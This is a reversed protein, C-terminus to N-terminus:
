AYRYVRRLRVFFALSVAFSLVEAFPVALWIGNVGVALPFLTVGAAIFVFTRLFSLIASVTGNSFATFMASAFINVGKFLFAIAFLRFGDVALEYVGSGVPTFVQVVSGATVAALGFTALSTAGLFRMSTRFLRKLQVDDGSGYNYSIVPAIGSSYGLYVAILLFESYLVITIAAVGDEGVYHMMAINFLYTIVASSLNTVMESSGNTCTRLLVDAKWRPRAFRLPSKRSFQFFALGSLAPISYGIGTALAAGGIGMGLKAIFVYDLLINAIGGTLTIVLGLVPRSAVVFFSQFIMQLIAPVTFWALLTYYDRCLARLAGNAGLFSLVTERLALGAVSIALGLAVGICLIFTFNEGAERPKGEGMKRAVIASGGTALMIGFALVVSVFPYVINVASLASTGILRSVFVGDVMTYMSMFVMMLITPAAFRLLSWFTFKQSLANRM